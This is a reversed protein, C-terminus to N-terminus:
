RQEWDPALACAMYHTLAWRNWVDARVGGPGAAFRDCTACGPRPGATTGHDDLHHTAWAMLFAGPNPTAPDRFRKEWQACRTCVQTGIVGHSV